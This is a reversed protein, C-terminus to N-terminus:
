CLILPKPNCFWLFKSTKQDLVKMKSIFFSVAMLNYSMSLAVKITFPLHIDKIDNRCDDKLAFM